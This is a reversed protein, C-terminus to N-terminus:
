RDPRPQGHGHQPVSPCHVIQSPFSCRPLPPTQPHPATLVHLSHPWSPSPPFHPQNRSSRPLLDVYIYRSLPATCLTVNCRERQVAFFDATAHLIPAVVKVRDTGAPQLEDHRGGRPGLELEPYITPLHARYRAMRVTRAAGGAALKPEGAAADGVEEKLSFPEEKM